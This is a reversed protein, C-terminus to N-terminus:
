KATLERRATKAHRVEGPNGKTLIAQLWQRWGPDAVSALLKRRAEAARKRM